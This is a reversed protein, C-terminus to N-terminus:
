RFHEYGGPPLPSKSGDPGILTVGRGEVIKGICTLRV